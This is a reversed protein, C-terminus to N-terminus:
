TVETRPLRVRCNDPLLCGSRYPWCRSGATSLARLGGPPPIQGWDAARQVRGPRTM